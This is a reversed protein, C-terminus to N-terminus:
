VVYRRNEETIQKTKESGYSRYIELALNLDAQKFRINSLILIGLYEDKSADYKLALRGRSREKAIWLKEVLEADEMSKKLSMFTKTCFVPIDSEEGSLSALVHEVDNFRMRSIITDIGMNWVEEYPMDYFYDSVTLKEIVKHIEDNFDLVGSNLSIGEGTEHINELPLVSLVTQEFERIKEELLPIKTYAPIKQYIDSILGQSMNYLVKKHRIGFRKTIVNFSSSMIKKIHDMMEDPRDGDVLGNRNWAKIIMTKNNFNIEVPIYALTDNVVQDKYTQAFLVFLLRISVLENKHNVESTIAAIKRRDGSNPITGLINKFNLSDINYKGKLPIQWDQGFKIHRISDLKYVRVSKRKGCFLEEFLFDEFDSRKLKEEQLLEDAWYKLEKGKEEESRTFGKQKIYTEIYSSDVNIIISQSISPMTVGGLISLIHYRIKGCLVM